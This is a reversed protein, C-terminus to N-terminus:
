IVDWITSPYHCDHYVTGLSIVKTKLNIRIFEYDAGEKAGWSGKGVAEIWKDMDADIDNSNIDYGDTWISTIIEGIAKYTSDRSPEKELTKIRWNSYWSYDQNDSVFELCSDKLFLYFGEKTNMIGRCHQGILDEFKM